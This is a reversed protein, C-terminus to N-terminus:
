LSGGVWSFPVESELDYASTGGEGCSSELSSQFPIGCLPMGLYTVTLLGVKCGMIDALVMLLEEGVGVGITM